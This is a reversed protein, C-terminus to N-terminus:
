IGWGNTSNKWCLGLIFIYKSFIRLHNRGEAKSKKVGESAQAKAANWRQLEGDLHSKWLDAEARGDGLM